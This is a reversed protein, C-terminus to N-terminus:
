STKAKGNAPNRTLTDPVGIFPVAGYRGQLYGRRINEQKRAKYDSLPFLHTAGLADKETFWIEDRRLDGYELINTDHTNFLLQANKPNRQPNNFAKVIEIAMLPHLSADLEDVCLVGGTALTGVMALCLYLFAQTGRSEQELAFAVNKVNGEVHHLLSIEPLTPDTMLQKLVEPKSSFLTELIQISLDPLKKDEIDFDVIGLDAGRMLKLVEMKLKPDLNKSLSRNLTERNNDDVISIQNGFWEFIPTLLQHNNQAAASLFLSNKRTLQQISKNEGTLFRSFKFQKPKSDDRVFWRQKKGGPYAYLWEERVHTSSVVFGYTYRIGGIIADIEFLSPQNSKSTSLLFPERPIRGAPDWDRHSHLVANRMFALAKLLTSKGSANAGYVGVVRLLPVNLQPIRVLHEPREKLPAAVFSLEQEKRISRHNEVRFRIIM